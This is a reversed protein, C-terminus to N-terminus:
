KDKGFLRDAMNKIEYEYFRVDSSKYDGAFCKLFMDSKFKLKLIEKKEEFTM